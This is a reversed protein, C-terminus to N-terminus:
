NFGVEETSKREWDRDYTHLFVALRGERIQIESFNGETRLRTDRWFLAGATLHTLRSHESDHVCSFRHTHGSLYVTDHAHNGLADRLAQANLLRRGPSLSYADTEHLMPYHGAILVPGNAENLLNKVKQVAAKDISGRSSFFNARVTPVLILPTGGPLTMRCPLPGPPLWPGFYREFRKDRVSEFTYVDHNGPIVIPRMGRSELGEVFRRAMEFEKPMSTSTFDGTLLLDKVGLSAVYGAYAEAREMPFEHRRRFMVNGNGIFRKNLLRLPNLVVQWFHFDTLHLLQDQPTEM